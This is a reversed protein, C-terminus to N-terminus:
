SCAKRSLLLPNHGAVLLLGAALSAPLNLWSAVRLVALAGPSLDLKAQSAPSLLSGRPKTVSFVLRACVLLLPPLFSVLPGRLVGANAGPRFGNIDRIAEANM